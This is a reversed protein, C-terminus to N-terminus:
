SRNTHKGFMTGSAAVREAQRKWGTDAAYTIVAVRAEGDGEGSAAEEQRSGQTTETGPKKNVSREKTQGIGASGM